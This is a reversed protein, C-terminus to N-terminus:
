GEPLPPRPWTIEPQVRDFYFYPGDDPDGEYTEDDRAGVEYLEGEEGEISFRIMQYDAAVVKLTKGVLEEESLMIIYSPDNELAWVCGRAHYHREGAGCSPCKPNLPLANTGKVGDEEGSGRGM